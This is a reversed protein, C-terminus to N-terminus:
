NVTQAPFVPRSARSVAMISVRPSAQHLAAPRMPRLRQNKEPGAFHAARQQAAPESVTEIRGTDMDDIRMHTGFCRGNARAIAHVLSRQGPRGFGEHQRDFRLGKGSIGAGKGRERTGPGEGDRDQGTLGQALKRWPRGWAPAIMLAM